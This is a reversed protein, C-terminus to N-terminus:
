INKEKQVNSLNAGRIIELLAREIGSKVRTNAQYSRRNAESNMM